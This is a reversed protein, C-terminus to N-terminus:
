ISCPIMATRACNSFELSYTDVGGDTILKSWSGRSDIKHSLASHLLALCSAIGLSKVSWTVENYLTPTKAVSM